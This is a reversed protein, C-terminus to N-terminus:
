SIVLSIDASYRLFAKLYNDYEKKAPLQVEAGPTNKHAPITLIKITLTWLEGRKGTGKERWANNIQCFFINQKANRM